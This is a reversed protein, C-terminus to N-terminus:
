RARARQAPMCVVAPAIPRMRLGTSSLRFWAAVPVHVRAAAEQSRALMVLGGVLLVLMAVNAAVSNTAMWTILSRDRDRELEDIETM